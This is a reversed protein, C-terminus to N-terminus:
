GPHADVGPATEALTGENGIIALAVKAKWALANAQEQLRLVRNQQLSRLRANCSLVILTRRDAFTCPRYRPDFAARWAAM